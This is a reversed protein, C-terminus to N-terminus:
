QKQSFLDIGIAKLIMASEAILQYKQGLSIQRSHSISKRIPHLRDMAVQFHERPMPTSREISRPPSTSDMFIRSFVERWHNKRTIIEKLDMFDSYYLEHFEVEGKAIADEKRDRWNKVKKQDLARMWNAGYQVSMRDLVLVRLSDEVKTILYNHLPDHPLLHRGDATPVNSYDSPLTFGTDALVDGVSEPTFTLISANMGAEIHAENEQDSSVEEDFEVPSGLDDNLIERGEGSFPPAKRVIQNLRAVTAFGECSLAPSESRFWARNSAIMQTNLTEKWLTAAAISNPLSVHTAVIDALEHITSRVSVKTSLGASLTLKVQRGKSIEDALSKTNVISDIGRIKSIEDAVLNSSIKRQSFLDDDFSM